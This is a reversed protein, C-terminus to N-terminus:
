NKRGVEMSEVVEGGERGGGRGGKGGAIYAYTKIRTNHHPSAFVPPPLDSVGDGVEERGPPTTAAAPRPLASVPGQGGEMGGEVPGEGTGEEVPTLPFCVLKFKKCRTGLARAGHQTM